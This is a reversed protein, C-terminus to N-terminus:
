GGAPRATRPSRATRATRVTRVSWGVLGVTPLAAGVLATTTWGYAGYLGASLASGSTGGVFTTAIYATNMRSRAAPQINYIARMGTVQTGQMAFDLLIAGLALLVLQHHGVAAIVLALAALALGIGTTAVGHGRDALRGVVPAAAAGAAGVLAFIGIGAQSMHHTHVLELAVSSWYVSFAGFMLAQYGSRRRLLPETRILGGVSRLLSGYSSSMAPTHTPLLRRLLLSLSLMLVASLLYIARWNVVAALLSSVTRALLIGLLLGSTVQGVVQGRMHAPALNAALPVVVQVVVSTLGVVLSAALFLGFSPAFATAALAAATGLLIRTILRRNEVLDGLPVLLVLGAAYGLQTLTIVNAATGTSVQFSKAIPVLLPQAYYLNAVALGSALALLPVIRRLAADPVRREPVPRPAETM